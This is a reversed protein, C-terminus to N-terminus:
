RTVGSDAFKERGTEYWAIVHRLDSLYHRISAATLDKRERLRHEYSALAEQGAHSIPPHATRKM